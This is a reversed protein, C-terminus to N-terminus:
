SQIDMIYLNVNELEVIKVNDLGAQKAFDRIQEPKLRHNMPPGFPQEKYPHELIAIRKRALRKAETLTQVQDDVEHFVNAMFVMDFSQDEFPMKEAPASEFRGAPVHAKAAAIMEPNVDAGAVELGTNVFAEAFVGSGTGVDLVSAVEIGDLCCNILRPMEYRAIREPDRLKEIKDNFRKDSMIEVKRCKIM